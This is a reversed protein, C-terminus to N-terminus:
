VGNNPLELAEAPKLPVLLAINHGTQRKWPSRAMVDGMCVQDVHGVM